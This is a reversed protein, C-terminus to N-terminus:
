VGRGGRERGRGEEKAAAGGDGGGIRREHAVEQSLQERSDRRRVRGLEDSGDRPQQHDAAHLLAPPNTTSAAAASSSSRACIDDPREECGVAGRPRMQSGKGAVGEAAPVLPSSGSSRRSHRSRNRGRQSGLLARQEGLQPVRQLLFTLPKGLKGGGGGRSRTSGLSSRVFKRRERKSREARKQEVKWCGFSELYSAEKRTRVAWAHM